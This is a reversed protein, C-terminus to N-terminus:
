ASVAKTRAPPNEYTSRTATLIMDELLRWRPHLKGVHHLANSILLFVPEREGARQFVHERREDLPLIWGLRVGREPTTKAARQPM